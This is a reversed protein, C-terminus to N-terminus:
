PTKGALARAALRRINADGYQSAQSLKEAAAKRDGKELYLLGLRYCQVPDPEAALSVATEFERIADDVRGRKYAVMGLGSYCQSKVKREAKVWDEIAIRRPPHFATLLGLARRACTEARAIRAPDSTQNPLLYAMAALVPIYDPAARLAADGARLAAAEDALTLASQMELEFVSVLLESRPWERVFRQAAEITKGAGRAEVVDLFAAFEEPTNAQLTPLFQAPVVAASWLLVGCLLAARM